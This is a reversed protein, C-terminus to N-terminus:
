QTCVAETAMLGMLALSFELLTEGEQQQQSFFAEQLAAYSEACGYLEELVAIIKAPDLREESPRYKIEERVEGELHDFLFFAQDSASLHRARM